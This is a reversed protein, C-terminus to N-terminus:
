RQNDYRTQDNKNKSQRWFRTRLVTTIIAKQTYCSKDGATPGCDNVNLNERCKSIFTNTM